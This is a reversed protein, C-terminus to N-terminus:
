KEYMYLEEFTQTTSSSMVYNYYFVVYLSLIDTIIYALEVDEESFYDKKKSDFCVFGWIARTSNTLKKQNKADFYKKYFLSDKDIGSNTISMPIVLTSSYYDNSIKEGSYSKWSEEWVLDKQLRPNKYEKNRFSEELDNNLYFKANDKIITSFATNNLYNSEHFLSNVEHNRYIDVVSQNDVLKITFRLNMDKRGLTNLIFDNSEQFIEQTLLFSNFSLEDYASGLTDINHEKEKLLDKLNRHLESITYEFRMIQKQHYCIFERLTKM